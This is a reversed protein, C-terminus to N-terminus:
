RRPSPVDASPTVAHNRGAVAPMLKKDALARNIEVGKRYYDEDVVPDPTRLALWLTAFSAIVVLGPGGIVMWVLGFRYWPPCPRTAEDNSSKDTM